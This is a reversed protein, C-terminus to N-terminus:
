TADMQRLIRELREIRGEGNGIKIIRINDDLNM